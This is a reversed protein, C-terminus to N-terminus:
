KKSVVIDSQIMDWIKPDEMGLRWLAVGKIGLEYAKKIKAKISRTDEFWVEHENGNEDTYSFTPTQTKEDFIIEKNYKKALDVAKSYTVYNNKGTTLNFDFGFVSVAAVIKERDIKTVTYNIVREMWGISVVPGPGSGPWGHENYLMIVAEDLAEGIREYDFPDSFPNFPKDSIRSPLAASVYYGKQHLRRGLETYFKTLNESDEINVDEIDMNVGDFNYKEILAIVSNIFTQRNQKTSVMQSVLERALETGGNKYLLNHVTPMIKINNTHAIFVLNKVYQDTFEGFKEIQTPDKPDIRFMFLGLESINYKNNVFSDYSSPLQPGEETTYYGLISSIPKRAGYTKFQVISDSIWGIDGNFLRVKYWKGRVAVVPLRAKKSMKAVVPYQKGPGSRINGNNVGVVVETYFPIKLPKGILLIISNLNNLKVISKVTTNLLKAISYLSDGPQVTYFIATIYLKQGPYIMNSELNNYEKIRKITTGFKRSISYLSDGPKVIYSIPLMRIM